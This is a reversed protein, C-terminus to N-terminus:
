FLIKTQVDPIRLSHQPRPSARADERGRRLSRKRSVSTPKEESRMAVENTHNPNRRRGGAVKRLVLFFPSSEQGALHESQAGKVFGSALTGLRGRGAGQCKRSM